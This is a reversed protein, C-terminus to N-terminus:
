LLFGHNVISSNLYVFPLLESSFHGKVLFNHALVGQTGRLLCESFFIWPAYGTAYYSIFPTGLPGKLKFVFSFVIWFVLLTIVPNALEWAGWFVTRSYRFLVDRRALTRNTKREHRPKMSSNAALNM